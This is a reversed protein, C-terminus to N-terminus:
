PANNWLKMERLTELVDASYNDPEFMESNNIYVFVASGIQKHESLYCNFAGPYKEVIGLDKGPRITAVGFGYKDLNSKVLEPTSVVGPM